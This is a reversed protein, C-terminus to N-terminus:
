KKIVMEIKLIKDCVEITLDGGTKKVISRMREEIKKSGKWNICYYNAEIFILYWNDNEKCTIKLSKPTYSEFLYEFSNDFLLVMDVIDLKDLCTEIYIRWEINKNSEIAKRSNILYSLTNNECFFLDNFNARDEIKRLIDSEMIPVEHSELCKILYNIDHRLMRNEDYLSTVVKINGIIYEQDKLKLKTELMTNSEDCLVSYLYFVSLLLICLFILLMNYINFNINKKILNSLGNSLTIFSLLSICLLIVSSKTHIKLYKRKKYLIALLTLCLFIIKSIVSSKFLINNNFDKFSNVNECIFIFASISIINSVIILTEAFIIVFLKDIIKDIFLTHLYLYSLCIMIIVIVIHNLTHTLQLLLFSVLIFLIAYVVKFKSNPTLTRSLFLVYVMSEIFDVIIM